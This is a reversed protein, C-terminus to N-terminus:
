VQHAVAIVKGLIRLQSADLEMPATAPDAAELRIRGGDLHRLIKVGCHLLRRPETNGPEHSAASQQGIFAMGDVAFVIIDGDGATTQPYIILYDGHHIGAPAMCHGVVRSTILGHHTYDTLIQSLTTATTAPEDWLKALWSLGPELPPKNTSRGGVRRSPAPAPIPTPTPPGPLSPM